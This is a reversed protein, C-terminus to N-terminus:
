LLYRARRPDAGDTDKQVELDYKTSNGDTVYADFVLSRAGDVMKMDAQVDLKRVEIDPKELFVRLVYEALPINDRLMARFMIDDIPRFAELRELNDKRYLEEDTFEKQTNM